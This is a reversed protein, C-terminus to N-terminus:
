PRDTTSGSEATPPAAMPQLGSRYTITQGPRVNVDFAATEYGPARLEVHHPGPMLDLRETVGNFDSVVGVYFGDVYVTAAEQPVDLRLSGYAGPAEEMWEPDPPPYPYVYPAHPYPYGYYRSYPYVGYPFEYVWDFDPILPFPYVYTGRGPERDDPRVPPRSPAPPRPVAHQPSPAPTPRQPPAPRASPTRAPPSPASQSGKARQEDDAAILPSSRVAGAVAVILTGAILLEKTHM